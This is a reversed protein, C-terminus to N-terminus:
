FTISGKIIHKNAFLKAQNGRSQKKHTHEKCKTSAKVFGGSESGSSRFYDQTISTKKKQIITKTGRSWNREHVLHLHGGGGGAGAQGSELSGDKLDSALPEALRAVSCSINAISVPPTTPTLPYCKGPLTLILGAIPAGFPFPGCPRRGQKCDLGWWGPRGDLAM